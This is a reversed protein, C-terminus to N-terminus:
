KEATLLKDITEDIEPLKFPNYGALGFRIIGKQDIVYSTPYTKVQYTKAVESRKNPVLTYHFSRSMITKLKAATYNNVEFALFVVDKAKYKEVLKNLEPMEKKCPACGIFWFNLVVVKGKLKSLDYVIGDVDTVSFLPAPKGIQAAIEKERALNEPTNLLKKFENVAQEYEAPTAPRVVKAKIVFDADVYTDSTWKFESMEIQNKFVTNTIREYDQSLLRIDSEFLNRAEKVSDAYKLEKASSIKRLGQLYKIRRAETQEATSKTTDTSQAQLMTTTCLVFLVSLIWTKPHLM